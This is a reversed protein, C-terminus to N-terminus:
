VALIKSLIIMAADVDGRRSEGCQAIREVM